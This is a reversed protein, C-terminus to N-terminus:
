QRISQNPGKDELVNGGLHISAHNSRPTATLLGWVVASIAVLCHMILGASGMASTTSIAVMQAALMIMIALCLTREHKSQHTAQKLAQRLSNFASLFIAIYLALGVYGRNLTVIIYQNVLDLLGSSQKIAELEPHEHFRSSGFWPSEGAVLLSANLLRQRYGVTEAAETDQAGVFPLVDMVEDTFDFFSFAVVLVALASGLRFFYKRSVTFICCMGIIAGAIWNGRSFTVFLGMALAAVMVMLLKRSGIYASLAWCLGLATALAFGARSPIIFPGSGRLLGLREIPMFRAGNINFMLEAYLHWHRLTEFVVVLGAFVLAALLAFLVTRIDEFSRLYRSLVFYPALFDIALYTVNRMGNTVSTDRFALIASLLFFAWIYKDIPYHFASKQRFAGFLLPLLIVISLLRTWTMRMLHFGINLDNDLSPLLTCLFMFIAIRPVPDVPTLFLISIISIVLFVAYPAPLVATLLFGTTNLIVFFAIHRVDLRANNPFTANCLKLAIFGLALVYLLPIIKETM